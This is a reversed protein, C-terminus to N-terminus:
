MNFLILTNFPIIILNYLIINILVDLTPGYGSCYIYVIIYVWLLVYNYYLYVYIYLLSITIGLQTLLLLKIAYLNYSVIYQIYYIPYISINYKWYTFYSYNNSYLFIHFMVIDYM